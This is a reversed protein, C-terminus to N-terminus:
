WIIPAALILPLRLNLVALRTIFLFGPWWVSFILAMAIWAIWSSPDTLRVWQVALGWFALGGGWAGLYLKLRSTQLTALWFLPALAVWALWSWEVPPFSSWLLLGSTVGVLVPHSSSPRPSPGPETEHPNAEPLELSTMTSRM